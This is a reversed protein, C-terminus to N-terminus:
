LSAGRIVNYLFCWTQFRYSLKLIGLNIFLAISLRVARDQNYFIRAKLISLFKYQLLSGNDGGERVSVLKYSLSSLTEESKCSIHLEFKAITLKPKRQYRQRCCPHISTYVSLWSGEKKLSWKRRSRFLKKSSPQTLILSVM